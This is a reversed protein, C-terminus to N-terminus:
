GMLIVNDIVHIVGNDATIDATLVTANKVEFGDACNIKIPSGEV